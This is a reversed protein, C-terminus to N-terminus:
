MENSTSCYLKSFTSVIEITCLSIRLTMRTVSSNVKLIIIHKNIKVILKWSLYAGMICMVGM